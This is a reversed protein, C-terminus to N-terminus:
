KAADEIYSTYADLQDIASGFIVYDVEVHNGTKINTRTDAFGAFTSSGGYAGLFHFKIGTISASWLWNNGNPITGATKVADVWGMYSTHTNKYYTVGALFNVDYSYTEFKTAPNATLKKDSASTPAGGQLYMCTAIQATSWAADKAAMFHISMMNNNTSNLMRVQMYQHKGVWSKGVNASTFPASSWSGWGPILEADFDYTVINEFCLAFTDVGLGSVYNQTAYLVWTDETFEVALYDADYKLISVLYEHSTLGEDEAKTKTGFDFRAYLPVTTGSAITAATTASTASTTTAETTTAETTTAETTTAETTTAETTTAETTTAETTTAETTTAETTTAETTTAETTTAETTTEEVETEGCGVLALVACLMAVVMILSLIRKM